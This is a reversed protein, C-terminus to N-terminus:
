FFAWKPSVQVGWFITIKQGFSGRRSALSVLFFASVRLTREFEENGKGNGWLEWFLSHSLGRNGNGWSEPFRVNSFIDRSKGFERLIGIRLFKTLTYFWYDRSISLVWRLPNKKRNRPMKSILLLRRIIRGFVNKFQFDASHPRMKKALVSNMCVGPDSKGRSKSIWFMYWM